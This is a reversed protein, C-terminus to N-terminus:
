SNKEFYETYYIKLQEAWDNHIMSSTNRNEFVPLQTGRRNLVIGANRQFSVFAEIVNNPDARLEEYAVELRNGPLIQGLAQEFEDLLTKVQVVVQEVPDSICRIEDINCPPHGYFTELNGYRKLRANLISNCVFFPDRTLYIVRLEPLIELLRQLNAVAYVSDFVLPSGIVHELAALKRCLRATDIPRNIYHEDGKLSLVGKWFWGWEHPELPGYTNGYESYFSSVFNSQRLEAQLRAGVSPAMWFKAM